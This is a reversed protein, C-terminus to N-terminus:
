KRKMFLIRTLGVVLGELYLSQFIKGFANIINTNTLYGSVSIFKADTYLFSRNHMGFQHGFSTGVFIRFGKNYFQDVSAVMNDFTKDNEPIIEFDQEITDRYQHPHFDL